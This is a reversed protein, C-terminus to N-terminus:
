NAEGADGHEDVDGVTGFWSGFGGSGANKEAILFNRDVTMEEGVRAESGVM